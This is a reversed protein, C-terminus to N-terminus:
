YKRKFKITLDELLLVNSTALTIRRQDIICDVCTFAIDGNADKVQIDFYLSYSNRFINPQSDYVPSISKMYENLTKGEGISVGLGSYIPSSDSVGEITSGAGLKSFFLDTEIFARQSTLNGRYVGPIFEVVSSSGIQDIERTNYSETLTFNQLYGIEFGDFLIAATAGSLNLSTTTTTQAPNVSEEAM